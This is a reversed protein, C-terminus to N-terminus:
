AGFAWRFLRIVVPILTFSGWFVIAMVGLSVANSATKLLRTRADAYAASAKTEEIHAKNHEVITQYADQGIAEEMHGFSKGFKAMFEERSLGEPGTNESM